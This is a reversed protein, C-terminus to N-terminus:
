MGRSPELGPFVFYLLRTKVRLSFAASIFHLSVSRKLTFSNVSRKLHPFVATYSMRFLFDSISSCHRSPAPDLFLFNLFVPFSSTFLATQCHNTSAFDLLKLTVPGNNCAWAFSAASCKPLVSKLADFPHNSLKRVRWEILKLCRLESAVWTHGTVWVSHSSYLSFYTVSATCITNCILTYM